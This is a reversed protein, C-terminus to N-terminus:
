RAAAGPPRGVGSREPLSAGRGLPVVAERVTERGTARELVHISHLAAYDLSSLVVVM